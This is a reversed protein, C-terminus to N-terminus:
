RFIFGGNQGSWELAPCLAAFLCLSCNLRPEGLAKVRSGHILNQLWDKLEAEHFSSWRNSDRGTKAVGNAIYILTNPHFFRFLNKSCEVKAM